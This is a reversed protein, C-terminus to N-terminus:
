LISSHKRRIIIGHQIYQTKIMDAICKEQEKTFIRKHQGILSGPIYNPNDKLQKNWFKITGYPIGSEQSIQILPPHNPDKLVAIM